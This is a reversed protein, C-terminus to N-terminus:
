SYAEPGETATQNELRYRERHKSDVFRPLKGRGVTAYMFSASLSPEALVVEVPLDQQEIFRDVYGLMEGTYSDMAPNEIGTNSHSIYCRPLDIGQAKARKLAEFFLVLVASSDKGFSSATCISYGKQLLDVIHLIVPEAKQQIREYKSNHIQVTM